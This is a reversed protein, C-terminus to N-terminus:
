ATRADDQGTNTTQENDIIQQLLKKTFTYRLVDILKGHETVQVIIDLMGREATFNLTTEIGEKQWSEKEIIEKNM